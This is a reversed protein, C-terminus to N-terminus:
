KLNFKEFPLYKRCIDATQQLSKNRAADVDAASAAYAAPSTAAYAASYASNTSYAASYAASAAYATASDAYYPFYDDYADYAADYAAAAADRLEEISAKGEGFKIAIRVGKRSRGDKMKDYVTKVCHGKALTLLRLDNGTKAFLWLLWDGRHCTDYIEKWSKDGAWKIFDKNARMSILQSRVSEKKTEM